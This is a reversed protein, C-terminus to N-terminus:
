SNGGKIPFQGSIFLMSRRTFAASQRGNEKRLDWLARAIRKRGLRPNGGHGGFAILHNVAIHYSEPYNM